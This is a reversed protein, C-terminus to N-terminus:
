RHLHMEGGPILGSSNFVSIELTSGSLLGNAGSGSSFPDGVVTGALANGRLTGRFTVATFGCGNKDVTLTGAVASGDQQFSARASVNSDCDIYDSPDFRGTWEGAINGTPIPETPSKTENCGALVLTAAAVALGSILSNKMSPRM